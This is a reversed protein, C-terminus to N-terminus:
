FALCHCITWNPPTIEFAHYRSVYFLTFLDLIHHSWLVQFLPETGYVPILQAPHFIPDMHIVASRARSGLGCEPADGSQRFWRVVACLFYKGNL